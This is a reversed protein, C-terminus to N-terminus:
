ACVPPRWPVADGWCSRVGMPIEIAGLGVGIQVANRNEYFHTLLMLAGQKFKAPISELDAWGVVYTIEVRWSLRDPQLMPWAIGPARVLRGPESATDVIYSSASLTQLTGAADYYKVTTVSQLPAGMMLYFIDAWDDSTLVWTQTYWGRGTVDEGLERAAKVWLDFLADEDPLDRLARSHEKAEDLTFLEATPDVTRRWDIRPYV